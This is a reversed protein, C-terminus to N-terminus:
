RRTAELDIQVQIEDGVVPAAEMMRNYQLNFDRRNIKTSASAGVRQGGNPQKLVASPGEVELAVEKTVGHLTLDGVLRFKGEGATEVRKSKFTAKPNSTVDFFNESRLDKDRNANGTNVGNVDISVDAKISEVSKGDYDITGTVPGLTGRVTSVMMHKVSFGAATHNTDIQWTNPGAAAQSQPVQAPAQPAPAQGFAVSSCLLVCFLVSRVVLVCTRHKEANKPTKRHGSVSVATTAAIVFRKM